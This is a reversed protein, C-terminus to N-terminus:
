AWPPSLYLQWPLGSGGSVETCRLVWLLRVSAWVQGRWSAGEETSHQQQQQQQHGQQGQQHGQLVALMRTIGIGGALM